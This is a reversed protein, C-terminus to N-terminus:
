FINIYFIIKDDLFILGFFVIDCGLSFDEDFLEVDVSFTPDKGNRGTTATTGHQACLISAEYFTQFWYEINTGHDGNYDSDPFSGSFSDEMSVGRSSKDNVKSIALVANTLVFTLVIAILLTVIVSVVNSLIKKM